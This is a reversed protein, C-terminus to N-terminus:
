GGLGFGALKGALHIQGLLEVPRRKGQTISVPGKHLCHFISSAIEINACGLGPLVRHEGTGTFIGKGGGQVM